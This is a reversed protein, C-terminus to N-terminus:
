LTDTEIEAFLPGTPWPNAVPEIRPPAEGLEAAAPKGVLEVGPPSPVNLQDVLATPM